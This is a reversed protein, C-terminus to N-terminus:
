LTGSRGRRTVLVTHLAAIFVVLLAVLAVMSRRRPVPGWVEPFSIIRDTSAERDGSTVAVSAPVRGLEAGASQTRATFVKSQGPLIAHRQSEARALFLPGDVEVSWGDPALQNYCQYARVEFGTIPPADLNAVEWAYIHSRVSVSIRVGEKELAPPTLTAAILIVRVLNPM